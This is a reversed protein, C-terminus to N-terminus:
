QRRRRHENPQRYDNDSRHDSRGPTLTIVETDTIEASNLTGSITLSGTGVSTPATLTATFTGNNNNTVSSLTGATTALVVTYGAGTAVNTGSADKLQVTITSTSTGDATISTPSATITTEAPDASAAARTVSVTYTKTSGDQATVVVTVTNSAVTLPLNRRLRLWQQSFNRQRNGDRPERGRDPHLHHRQHRRCPSRIPPPAPLCLRPNLSGTGPVLNGLNANSSAVLTVSANDSIAVTNLTGTITATGATNSTLTATYTGDGHNTVISLSGTTTALAM